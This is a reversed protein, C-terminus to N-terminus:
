HCDGFMTITEGSVTLQTDDNWSNGDWYKWGAAPPTLLGQQVTKIGGSSGSPTSGILWLGNDAYFLYKGGRDLQYIPRNNYPQSDNKLYVGMYSPRATGALGDSSVAYADPYM